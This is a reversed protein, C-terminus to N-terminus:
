CSMKRLFELISYATLYALFEMNEPNIFQTQQQYIYLNLNQMELSLEM